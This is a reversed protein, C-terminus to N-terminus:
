IKPENNFNLIDEGKWIKIINEIQVLSVYKIRKKRM